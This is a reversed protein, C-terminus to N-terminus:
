DCGEPRILGCLRWLRQIADDMEFLAQKEELPLPLLEILRAAVYDASPDAVALRKFPTGMHQLLEDLLESMWSLGDPMAQPAAIPRREIQARLLGDPEVKVEALSFAQEGECLLGLLGDDEQQWDIIRALTGSGATSAHGGVEPGDRIAAVAFPEDSRLCESVMRLYRPEFIRLPLLGGPFLVLKLPFLAVQENTPKNSDAKM